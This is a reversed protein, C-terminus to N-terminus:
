DLPQRDTTPNRTLRGPNHTQDQRDGLSAGRTRRWCRSGAPMVDWGDHPRSTRGRDAKFSPRASAKTLADLDLHVIVDRDLHVIVDRRVSGSRRGVGAGWLRRPRRWSPTQAERRGPNPATRMGKTPADETAEIATEVVTGDEPSTARARLLRRGRLWLPFLPGRSAGGRPRPRRKQPSELLGTGGMSSRSEAGPPAATLLTRPAM